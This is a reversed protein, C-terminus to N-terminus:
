LVEELTKYMEAIKEDSKKLFGAMMQTINTLIKVGIQPNQQCFNLFDKQAVELTVSEKTAVVTTLSKGNQLMCTISFFVDEGGKIVAVQMDEESSSKKILVEGQMLFFAKQLTDGEQKIIQDKAIKLKTFITFFLEKEKENLGKLLSSDM